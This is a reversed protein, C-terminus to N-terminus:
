SRITPPYGLPFGRELVDADAPGHGRVSGGQLEVQRDSPYLHAQRAVKDLDM